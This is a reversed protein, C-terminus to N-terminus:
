EDQKPRIDIFSAAYPAKTDNDLVKIRKGNLRMRTGKRSMYITIASKIFGRIHSQLSKPHLSGLGIEFWQEGDTLILESRRMNNFRVVLLIHTDPSSIDAGTLKYDRTGTAGLVEVEVSSGGLPAVENTSTGSVISVGQRRRM